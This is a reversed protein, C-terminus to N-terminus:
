RVERTDGPNPRDSDVDFAAEEPLDEYNDDNDNNYLAPTGEKNMNIWHCAGRYGRRASKMVFAALETERGRYISANQNNIPM